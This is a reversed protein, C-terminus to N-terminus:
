RVGRIKAKGYQAEQRTRPFREPAVRRRGCQSKLSSASHLLTFFTMVPIDPEAFWQPEFGEVSSKTHLYVPSQGAITQADNIYVPLEMMAYGSVKDLGPALGGLKPANLGRTPPLGYHQRYDSLSAFTTSQDPVLLSHTGSNSIRPIDRM